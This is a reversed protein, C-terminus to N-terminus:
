GDEMGLLFGVNFHVQPGQDILGAGDDEEAAPCVHRIVVMRGKGAQVEAARHHVLHTSQQRLVEPKGPSAASNESM